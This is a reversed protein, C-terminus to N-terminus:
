HRGDDVEKGAILSAWAHSILRAPIPQRWLNSARPATGLSKRCIVMSSLSPEEKLIAEANARVADWVPDVSAMQVPTKLSVSM